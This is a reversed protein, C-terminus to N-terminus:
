QRIAARPTVGLIGAMTGEWSEEQVAEPVNNARLFRDYREINAELGEPGEDTAFIMKQFAHRAGTSPSHRTALEPRWWLIDSWSEPHADRKLLSSGSIDWVLNPNWRAAEAAEDYWPNGFHAGVIKLAPFRRAITDLFAPRMRAMGSTQAVEPRARAVIGTHFLAVMGHQALREYILWYEPSDYDHFPSSIEGVGKFGAAHYAEIKNLVDPDDLRIGGFPVIVDPYQAAYQKTHEISEFQTLACVMTNFRRHVDVTSKVFAPNDRFHYHADIKFREAAAASPAREPAAAPAVRSGAAPAQGHVAAALLLAGCGLTACFQKLPDEV